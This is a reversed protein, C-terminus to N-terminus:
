FINWYDSLLRRIKFVREKIIPSITQKPTPYVDSFDFEEIGALTNLIAAVIQPLAELNYGGELVITIRGDCIKDAVKMVRETIGIYTETTFNLNALM